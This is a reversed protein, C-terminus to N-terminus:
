YNIHKFLQLSSLAKGNAYKFTTGAKEFAIISSVDVGKVFNLGAAEVETKTYGTFLTALMAFSLVM